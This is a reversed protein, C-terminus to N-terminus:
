GSTTLRHGSKGRILEILHGYNKGEKGRGSIFSLYQVKTGCHMTTNVIISTELKQIM